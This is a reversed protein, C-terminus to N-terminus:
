EGISAPFTCNPWAVGKVQSYPTEIEGKSTIECIKLDILGYALKEDKTSTFLLLDSIMEIANIPNTLSNMLTECVQTVEQRNQDYAWLRNGEELNEVGYLVNGEFDWTLDELRTTKDFSVVEVGPLVLENEEDINIQFTGSEQSWGWLRGDPHFALATVKEFGTDGVELVTQAGNRVEYLKGEESAAYVQNNLPNIDLAEIHYNDKLFESRVHIEPPGDNVNVIFFQTQKADNHVGYVLCASDSSKVMLGQPPFTQGEMDYGWCEVINNPRVGCAHHGGTELLKSFPYSPSSTCACNGGMTNNERSPCRCTSHPIRIAESQTINLHTFCVATHDTKLGCPVKGGPVQLYFTDIPPQIKSFGGWCDMSQDARIGCTSSLFAGVQFFEGNPPISQSYGPYAALTPPDALHSGWCAMTHDTRIGCTHRGGASVQLFTGSQPTVQGLTEIYKLKNLYPDENRISPDEEKSKTWYPYNSGWCVLTHDTRIGCTHWFGASIQLFTGDPPTAQGHEPPTAQDDENLGWCAVTKDTRIGCTHHGGITVQLFTGTPPLAQGKNNLGWCVITNDAQIICSHYKGGRPGESCM